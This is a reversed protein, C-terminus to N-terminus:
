SLDQLKHLADLADTESLDDIKVMEHGDKMMVLALGSGTVKKDQRMGEIVKSDDWFLNKSDVKLIPLLVNRAFFIEQDASLIKRKRAVINALIM